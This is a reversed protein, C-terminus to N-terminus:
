PTHNMVAGGSLHLVAFVVVLIAAAILFGTVWLPTRHRPPETADASKDRDAGPNTM